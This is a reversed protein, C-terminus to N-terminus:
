PMVGFYLEAVLEAATESLGHKSRLHRVQIQRPEGRRNRADANERTEAQTCNDSFGWPM